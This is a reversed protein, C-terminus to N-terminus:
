LKVIFYFMFYQISYTVNYDMDVACHSATGVTETVRSYSLDGHYYQTKGAFPDTV